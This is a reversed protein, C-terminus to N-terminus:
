ELSGIQYRQETREFGWHFTYLAPSRWLPHSTKPYLWWVYPMIPFRWMAPVWRLLNQGVQTLKRSLRAILDTFFTKHNPFQSNACYQLYDAQSHASFHGPNALNAFANARKHTAFAARPVGAEELIRRLIPKNRALGPVIWPHMAESNTIGRIAQDHVTGICLTPFMLYGARLRFETNSMYPFHSRSLLEEGYPPTRFSQDHWSYGPVGTFLLAGVLQQEMTSLPTWGMPGATCFEAEPFDTRHTYGLRIYRTTTLGLIHAISSGDDGTEAGSCDQWAFTVAETCGAKAALVSVAPSDYGTSIMTVPRFRQCRDPDAANDAIANVTNQLLSILEEYSQPEASRKKPERRVSLDANVILNCGDDAYVRSGRYTRLILSKRSAGRLNRWWDFFYDSYIPDPRDNAAVLLFVYSNSVILADPLRLSYIREVPHSPAAFVVGTATVKGGTGLLMEAQEFREQEFAGNWAGEFFCDDRREVWPGHRVVIAENGKTLHACWALRPLETSQRYEFYM